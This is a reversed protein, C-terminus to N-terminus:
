PELAYHVPVTVTMEEQGMGLPFPPLRSHQIMALAAGDLIASGSSQLLTASMVTGDRRVTFRIM